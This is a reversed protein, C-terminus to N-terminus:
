VVTKLANSGGFKGNNSKDLIGYPPCHTVLIDVDKPIKSWIVEDLNPKYQFATQCYELTYPSGFIKIGEVEVSEHELYTCRKKLEAVIHSKELKIM